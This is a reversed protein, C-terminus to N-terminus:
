LTHPTSMSEREPANVGFYSGAMGVFGGAVEFRTGVGQIISLGSLATQVQARSEYDYMQGPARRATNIGVVLRGGTPTNISSYGVIRDDAGFLQEATMCQPGVIGAGLDYRYARGYSDFAISKLEGRVAAARVGAGAVMGPSFSATNIPVSGGSALSLTATGIPLLARELNLLGWGFVEDVGPAGLDTASVFLIGAIREASLYPWHALISAAAGAVLPAAASTGSMYVMGTNSFASAGPVAIGPAVMFWNKTDGARNSFGAIANNAGVAGVAIIRGWGM